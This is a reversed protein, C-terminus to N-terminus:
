RSRSFLIIKCIVLGHVLHPLYGYDRAQLDQNREPVPHAKIEYIWLKETHNLYLFPGGKAEEITRKITVEWDRLYPSGALLMFYEKLKAANAANTAAVGVGVRSFFSATAEHAEATVM